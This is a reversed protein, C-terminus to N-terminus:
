DESFGSEIFRSAMGGSMVRFLALTFREEISFMNDFGEEVRAGEMNIGCKIAMGKVNNIKNGTFLITNSINAM